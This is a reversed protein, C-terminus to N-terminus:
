KKVEKLEADEHKSLSFNGRNSEGVVVSIIIDKYEEFYKKRIDYADIDIYLYADELGDTLKVRMAERGDRQSKFKTTEGVRAIVKPYKVTNRKIDSITKLGEKEIIDIYDNMFYFDMDFGISKLEREKLEKVTMFKYPKDEKDELDFGMTLQSESEDKSDDRLFDNYYWNYIDLRDGFCDFCGSFLLTEFRGKHALKSPMQHLFESVSKYPQKKIIEEGASGIGYLDSFGMRLAGSEDITWDLDSRNIDPRLITLGQSAAYRVRQSLLSEGHKKKARPTHKLLSCMFESLFNAKLYLQWASIVSYGVSHSLCFGYGQFALLESFINNCYEETVEGLGIKSKCGEIFKNKWYPTIDKNMKNKYLLKMFKYADVISFGALNKAVHYASEQYLPLGYTSALAHNLCYPVSWQEENKRRAGFREHFKNMLASPRMLANAASLDEFQEIGNMAKIVPKSLPSEFQFIGTFDYKNCLKIAKKDELPIEYMDISLGRNENIMKVTDAIQSITKVGLIDMKIFGMRGLERDEIGETWCSVIKGDVKKLPLLNALDKDSIIVGGAHKGFYSIVGRMFEFHQEINPYKKLFLDLQPSMKKMDELSYDEGEEDENIDKLEGKTIAYIEELPIEFSRCLDLLVSKNKLRGVSGIMCIKNEGYKSILYEIVADRNMVDWDVDPYSSADVTGGKNIIEDLRSADLFREFLLNYKIPDVHTIELCYMVLSGCCSGRGPGGYIKNDKAWRCMDEIFLFYDAFGARIINDLEYELREKYVSSPHAFRKNLGKMAYQRLLKESNEFKLMKPNTDVPLIGIQSVIKDISTICSEFINNTFFVNEYKSHYLNKLEELSKYYSGSCLDINNSQMNKRMHKVSCLIKYTDEHEKKIYHSNNSIIASIGYKRCFDATKNCYEVYDNNESLCLEVYCEDFYKRYTKVREFADACKDSYIMTFVDSYPMPLIAVIGKANEFLFKDNIRPRDYYGNLQSENHCKIINYFGEINKALLIINYSKAVKDIHHQEVESYPRTWQEDIGCYSIESIKNDDDYKMKYNSLYMEVGLIPTIGNDVCKFYQNVWGSVESYNTVAYHTIGQEKLFPIIDETRGIGNRLSYEDHHHLNVYMPPKSYQKRWLEFNM